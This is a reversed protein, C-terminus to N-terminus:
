GVRDYLQSSYDNALRIDNGYLTSGGSSVNTSAALQQNQSIRTKAFSGFGKLALGAVLLPLGEPFTSIGTLILIDGLADIILGGIELMTEEFTKAGAAVQGLSGAFSSAIQGFAVKIEESMDMGASETEEFKAILSDLESETVRVEDGLSAGLGEFSTSFESLAESFDEMKESERDLQMKRFLTTLNEVEDGVLKFPRVWEEIEEKTLEVTKEIQEGLEKVSEKENDIEDTAEQIVDIFSYSAIGADNISKEWLINEDKSEKTSESLSKVGKFFLKNYEILGKIPVLLGGLAKSLGKNEDKWSKFDGAVKTIDLNSLRETLDSIKDNLGTLEIIAGGIEETLDGFVNKLQTLPGTGVKAAAEAQGGFAENLGLMLSELRESSGVAGEVQIGYRSLANTSSGLTKSVLDAAGALDMGKAAALDQVLPIVKKIQDEEKVFAAILAQARITEEDGFLTLKQLAQAQQILGQQADERGKLAVLLQNEAQAQVNYAQLAKQTFNKIANVSFAGAIAPGLLKISNQFGGLSGKAGNIGSKFKTNNASIVATLNAVTRTGM